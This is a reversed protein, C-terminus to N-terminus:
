EAVVERGAGEAGPKADKNGAKGAGVQRRKEIGRASLKRLMGHMLRVDQSPPVTIFPHAPCCPPLVHVGKSEVWEGVRRKLVGKKMSLLGWVVMGVHMFASRRAGVQVSLSNVRGLLNRIGGEVSARKAADSEFFQAEQM